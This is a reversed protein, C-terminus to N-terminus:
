YKGGSSGTQSHGREIVLASGEKLGLFKTTKMFERLGAAIIAYFTLTTVCITAVSIRFAAITASLAAPNTYPIPITACTAALVAYIKELIGERV